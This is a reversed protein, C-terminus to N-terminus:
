NTTQLETNKQIMYFVSKQSFPHLDSITFHQKEVYSMPNNKKYADIIELIKQEKLSEFEKDILSQSNSVKTTEQLGHQNQEKHIVKAFIDFEQSVIKQIEPDLLDFNERTLVKETDLLSKHTKYPQIKEKIDLLEFINYVSSQNPIQLNQMTYFSPFLIRKLKTFNYLYQIVMTYSDTTNQNCLIKPMLYGCHAELPTVYLKNLFIKSRSDLNSNAYDLGLVNGALISKDGIGYFIYVIPKNKLKIENLLDEIQKAKVSTIGIPADLEIIIRGNYNIRNNRIINLIQHLVYQAIATSEKKAVIHINQNERLSDTIIPLLTYKYFKFKCYNDGYKAEDDLSSEIEKSIQNFLYEQDYLEKDNDNLFVTLTKKYISYDSNNYINKANNESDYYKLYGNRIYYQSGLIGQLTTESDLPVTDRITKEIHSLIKDKNQENSGHKYILTYEKEAIQKTMNAIMSEYNTIFENLNSLLKEKVIDQYEQELIELKFKQLRLLTYELRRLEYLKEFLDLTNTIINLNGLLIEKYQLQNEYIKHEETKKFYSKIKEKYKHIKSKEYLNIEEEINSLITNNIKKEYFIKRTINNYWDTFELNALSLIYDLRTNVLQELLLTQNKDSQIKNILDKHEIKQLINLKYFDSFLRKEYASLQSKIKQYIDKLKNNKENELQKKSNYFAEKRIKLSISLDRLIRTSFNLYDIKSPISHPNMAFCHSHRYNYYPFYLINNSNAYDEENYYDEDISHSVWLKSVLNQSGKPSLLQWNYKSDLSEKDLKSLLGLNDTIDKLKESSIAYIIDDRYEKNYIEVSNIYSPDLHNLIANYDQSNYLEIIQDLGLITKALIGSDFLRHMYSLDQAATSLLEILRNKTEINYGELIKKDTLEEANIVDGINIYKKQGHKYKTNKKYFLKEQFLITDQQELEPNRTKHPFLGDIYPTISKSKIQNDKNLCATPVYVIRSNENFKKEYLHIIRAFTNTKVNDGSYLAETVGPVYIPLFCSNSCVRLSTNDYTNKADEWTNISNLDKSGVCNTYSYLDKVRNFNQIKEQETFSCLESDTSFTTLEPKTIKELIKIPVTSAETAKANEM